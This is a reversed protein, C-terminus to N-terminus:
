QRDQLHYDPVLGTYYTLERGMAEKEKSVINIQSSTIEVSKVEGKDLMELFENYSIEKNSAGMNGLFNWFLIGVMALILFMLITQRNRPNKNDDGGGTPRGSNNNHEEM